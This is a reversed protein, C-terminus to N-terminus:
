PNEKSHVSSNTLCRSKVNESLNKCCPDRVLFRLYFNRCSCEDIVMKNGDITKSFTVMQRDRDFVISAEAQKYKQSKQCRNVQCSQGQM